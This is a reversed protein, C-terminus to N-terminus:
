MLLESTSIKAKFHALKTPNYLKCPFQLDTATYNLIGLYSYNKWGFILCFCNFFLNLYILFDGDRTLTTFTQLNHVFNATIM